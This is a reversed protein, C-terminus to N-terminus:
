YRWDGAGAYCHLTVFHATTSLYLGTQSRHTPALILYLTINATPFLRVSIGSFHEEGAFSQYDQYTLINNPLSPSRRMAKNDPSAIETSAWSKLPQDISLKESKLQLMGLIMRPSHYLLSFFSSELFLISESVMVALLVQLDKLDATRYRM